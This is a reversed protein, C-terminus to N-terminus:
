FRVTATHVARPPSAGTYVDGRAAGSGYTYTGTGDMLDALWEGEYSNGSDFSACGHGEHQGAENREGEYTKIGRERRAAEDAAQQRAAAQQHRSDARARQAEPSRASAGRAAAQVATAAGRAACLLNQSSRKRAIAQVSVAASYDLRKLPDPDTSMPVAVAM